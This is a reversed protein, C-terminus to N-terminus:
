RGKVAILDLKHQGRLRRHTAKWQLKTLKGSARSKFSERHRHGQTERDIETKRERKKESALLKEYSRPYPCLKTCVEESCLQSKMWILESMDQAQARLPVILEYTYNALQKWFVKSGQKRQSKREKGM